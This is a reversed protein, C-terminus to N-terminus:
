KVSIKLNFTSVISDADWRRYEQLNLSGTGTGVAKILWRKKGIGGVVDPQVDPWIFIDDIIKFMNNDLTPKFDWSYGGDYNEPLTLEIIDNKKIEISQNNNNYDVKVADANITFNM